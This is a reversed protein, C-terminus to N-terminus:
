PDPIGPGGAGWKSHKPKNQGLTRRKLSATRLARWMKEPTFPMDFTCVSRGSCPRRGIVTQCRRCRGTVGCEGSGKVGLSQKPAIASSPIRDLDAPFDTARPMAYDMLSGTLFQGDDNYQCHEMLVQGLGQCVGGHVQGHVIPANVITGVDDVAFYREVTIRGTQPDIEIECIHCGNPFHM